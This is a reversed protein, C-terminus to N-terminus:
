RLDGGRDRRDAEGAPPGPRDCGPRYGGLQAIQVDAFGEADLHRRLKALVDTPDQDPVLRFDIKASALAPVITKSGPGQYGGGMGAVNCTPEFVAGPVDAGDRDLVLREIGFQRKLRAGDGPLRGSLKRGLGTARL